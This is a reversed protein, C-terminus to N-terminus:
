VKGYLINLVRYADQEEDNSLTISEAVNIAELLSFSSDMQRVRNAITEVYTMAHVIKLPRGRYPKRSIEESDWPSSWDLPGELGGGPHGYFGELRCARKLTHPLM